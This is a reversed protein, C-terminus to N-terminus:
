ADAEVEPEDAYDMYGTPDGKVAEEIADLADGFSQPRGDDPDVGAYELIRTVVKEPLNLRYEMRVLANKM